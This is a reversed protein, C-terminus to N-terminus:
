LTLIHTHSLSHSLSILYSLTLSLSLAFFISLFANAFMRERAKDSNAYDVIAAAFSLRSQKVSAFPPSANPTFRPLLQIKRECDGLLSERELLAYKEEQLLIM